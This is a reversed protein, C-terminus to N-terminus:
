PMYPIEIKDPIIRESASRTERVPERPAAEYVPTEEKEPEPPPPEPRSVAPATEPTTAPPTYSVPEVTRPATPLHKPTERLEEPPDPEIEPAKPSPGAWAPQVPAPRLIEPGSELKRAAETRVSEPVPPGFLHFAVDRITVELATRTGRRDNRRINVSRTTIPRNNLADVVRLRVRMSKDESEEIQLYLYRSQGSALASTTCTTETCTGINQLKLNAGQAVEALQQDVIKLEDAPIM